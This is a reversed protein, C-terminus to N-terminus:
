QVTYAFSTPAGVMEEWEQRSFIAPEIDVGHKLMMDFALDSIEDKLGRGGHDVVVLIDVDSGARADGRAQSGFLVVKEIHQGHRARLTQTYEELATQRTEQSIASADREFPV